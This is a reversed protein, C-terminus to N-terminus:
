KAAGTHVAAARSRRRGRGISKRKRRMSAQAVKNTLSLALIDDLLKKPISVSVEYIWCIIVAAVFGRRPSAEILGCRESRIVSHAAGTCFQIRPKLSAAANRQPYHWREDM